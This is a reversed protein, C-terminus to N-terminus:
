VKQALFDRAGDAAIRLDIILYPVKESRQGLSPVCPFIGLHGIVFYGLFDSVRFFAASRVRKSSRVPQPACSPAWETKPARSQSGCCYGFKEIWGFLSRARLSRRLQQPDCVRAGTRTDLQAGLWIGNPKSIEHRKPYKTM